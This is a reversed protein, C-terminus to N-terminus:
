EEIISLPTLSSSDYQVVGGELKQGLVDVFLHERWDRSTRPPRQGLMEHIRRKYYAFGGPEIVVMPEAGVFIGTKSFLMTNLDAPAQDSTEERRKLEHRTALLEPSPAGQGSKQYEALRSRHHARIAEDTGGTERYFALAGEIAERTAAPSQLAPLIDFVKGDPRCFYLAIEGGITGRVERGDGLDFIAVKVPAVSEWVAIFSDNVLDVIRKDSFTM